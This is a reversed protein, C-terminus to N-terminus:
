EARLGAAKVVKAWKIFESNIVAAFDKLADFPLKAYLSPNVAHAFVGVLLTHGDAAAKAM